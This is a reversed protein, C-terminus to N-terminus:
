RQGAVWNAVAALQEAPDATGRTLPGAARALEDVREPTLQARREAFDLIAQQEGPWLRYAPAVARAQPRETAADEQEERYVVLTGAALDGLRKFDRHLLMTILGFAYLFPLFDVFRILNRVISATWKVPTGNDHLVRIGLMRKGPTAGDMYVEGIVPYFWELLFMCILALGVGFKGMAGLVTWLVIYGAFRILTDMFWALARPVPGAVRLDLEIGEPTELQRATDLM